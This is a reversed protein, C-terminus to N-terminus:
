YPMFGPAIYGSTYADSEPVASRRRRAFGQRELCFGAISSM